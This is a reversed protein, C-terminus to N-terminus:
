GGCAGGRQPRERMEDAIELLQEACRWVRRRSGMSSLGGRVDVESVVSRAELAPYSEDLLRRYLERWDVSEAEAPSLTRIHALLEYLYPMHRTIRRRWFHGDLRQTLPPVASILLLLDSDPLQDLLQHLLETPLSLLPHTPRSTDLCTSEDTIEKLPLDFELPTEPDLLFPLRARIEKGEEWIDEWRRQGFEFYEM